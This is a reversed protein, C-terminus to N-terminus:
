FSIGFRLKLDFEKETSAYLEFKSTEVEVAGTSNTETAFLASEFLESEFDIFYGQILTLRLALAGSYYIGNKGIEGATGVAGISDNSYFVKALIIPAWFENLPPLHWRGGAGLIIGTSNSPSTFGAEADYSRMYIGIDSFYYLDDEYPEAYRTEVEFSTATDAKVGALKRSQSKYLGGAGSIEGGFGNVSLLLTMATLLMKLYTTNM